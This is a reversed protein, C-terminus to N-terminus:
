YPVLYPWNSHFALLLKSTYAIL